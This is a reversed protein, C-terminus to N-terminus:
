SPKRRAKGAGALASLAPALLMVGYVAAMMALKITM